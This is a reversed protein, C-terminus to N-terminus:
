GLDILQTEMLKIFRETNETGEKLEFLYKRQSDIQHELHKKTACNVMEEITQAYNVAEYYPESVWKGRQHGLGAAAGEYFKFGDVNLKFLEVDYLESPRIIWTSYKVIGVSKIIESVANSVINHVESRIAPKGIIHKFSEKIASNVLELFKLTEM